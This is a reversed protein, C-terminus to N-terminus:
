PRRPLRSIALGAVAFAAAFAAFAWQYSGTQDHVWGAFPVGMANAPVQFPRLLGMAKGYSLRGFAQATLTASLPVMGGMGFGFVAAALSLSAAGGGRAFLALGVLQAGLSVWVAVRGDRRDALNGFFFKGGIGCAASLSLIAAARWPSVGLDTVYPIMHTLMGAVAFMGVGFAVVLSWFAPQGLLERTRWTREAVVADGPQPPAAGDPQLDMEEPRTVVVRAVLPVVLALTGAAYALYAGRWGVEAVLWTAVPPMLVGSASVGVTAIGLALGRRAAFWNVVLSATTINSMGLNGLGIFAALVLYYQWLAEVRSLLAFGTASVLAGTLMIRRIPLRDIARGLFPAAMGSVINVLMLGAGVGLRSGGFDAAVAKFLVGYSYFLFGTAVFDCVFAVAVIRWGYFGPAARSM